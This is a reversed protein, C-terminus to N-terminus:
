PQMDSNLPQNPTIAMRGLDKDLMYLGDTNAGVMKIKDVITRFLNEEELQESVYWQLFNFSTFDKEQLCLNVLEHISTSVKGEHNLILKFLEELSAYEHNPQPVAPAKAFGGADNIYFFLKQMHMKEEEAQNYIFKSAGEFGNNDLWSAMALYQFYSFAELAVQDNLAKEINSSVM